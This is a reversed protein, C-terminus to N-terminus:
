KELAPISWNQLAASLASVSPNSIAGIAVPGLQFRMIGRTRLDCVNEEILDARNSEHCFSPPHEARFSTAAGRDGTM